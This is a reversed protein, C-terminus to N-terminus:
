ICVHRGGAKPTPGHRAKPQHVLAQDQDQSSLLIYTSRSTVPIPFQDTPDCARLLHKRHVPNTRSRRLNTRMDASYKPRSRTLTPPLLLPTQANHPSPPSSPQVRTTQTSIRISNRNLTQSFVPSIEKTSQLRIECPLQLFRCPEIKVAPTKFGDHYVAFHNPFAMAFAMTDTGAFYLKIPSTDTISTLEPSLVTIDPPQPPVRSSRYRSIKDIRAEM